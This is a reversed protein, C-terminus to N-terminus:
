LNAFLMYACACINVLISCCQSSIRFHEEKKARNRLVLLYLPLLLPIFYRGQLGELTTAYPENWQIYLATVTLLTVIICVLFSICREYRRGADKMDIGGSIMSAKEGTVHIEKTGAKWYQIVIASYYPLVFTLPILINRKGLIYGICEMVKAGGDEFLYRLIMSGYALPHAIVWSMQLESNTGPMLLFRSCIGMWGLSIIGVIVACICSHLIKGKLGGRFSEAPILFYYLLFPVYVIKISCM